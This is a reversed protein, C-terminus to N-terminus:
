PVPVAVGFTRDLGDALRAREADTLAAEPHMWVYSRLPMEHERVVEGAEDADRQPQDVESFNLKWRGGRVHMRMWWSVPAVHGYWPVTGENSHCDFCARRALAETEPADWEPSGTVPPHDIRLPVLQAAAFLGAAIATARLARTRDM